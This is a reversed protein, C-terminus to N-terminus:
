KDLQTFSINPVCCMGEDGALSFQSGAMYDKSGLFSEWYGLEKKLDAVKSDYEDRPADKM